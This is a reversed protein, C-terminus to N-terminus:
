KIAFRISLALGDFWVHDDGIFNFAPKWDLGINIPVEDFTYELGGILDMGIVSYSDRKDRWYYHGGDWFGAHGGIGVFWDLNNVGKLPKQYEYLGTIVFGNWRFSLLGELAKDNQIFHKITFGNFFGIRGGIATKYNQAELSTTILYMFAIGILLKKLMIKM